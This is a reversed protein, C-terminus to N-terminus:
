TERRSVTWTPSRRACILALRDIVKAGWGEEGQRALIIQGIDWYLLVMAANAALAASVGGQLSAEQDRAAHNRVRHPLSVVPPPVPFLARDGRARGLVRNADPDPVEKPIRALAHTPKARKSKM